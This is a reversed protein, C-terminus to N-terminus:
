DMMGEILRVTMTRASLDVELIFEGVAPILFSHGAEDAIEYVDQRPGQLVDTLTGVVGGEPTKVTMGILDRIFYTNEPMEWLLDRPLLLEQGRLSEAANRDDVGSLKLVVMDKQYRASLIDYSRAGIMVSPIQSFRDAEDTFPYVRVEGRIGVPATIKGLKVYDM